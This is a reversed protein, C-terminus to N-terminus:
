YGERLKIEQIMNNSIGFVSLTQTQGISTIISSLFGSVASLENAFETQDFISIYQSNGEISYKMIRESWDNTITSYLDLLFPNEASPYHSSYYESNPDNMLEELLPSIIGFRLASTKM